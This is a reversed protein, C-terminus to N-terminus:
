LTLAVLALDHGTPFFFQGATGGGSATVSVGTLTLKVDLTTGGDATVSTYSTSTAGSIDAGNRTWQDTVGAYTPVTFVQGVTGSTPSIAPAAAVGGSGTVPQLVQATAAPAAALLAAALLLVRMRSM